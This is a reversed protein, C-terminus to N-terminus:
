KFWYSNGQQQNFSGNPLDLVISYVTQAIDDIAGGIHGGLRNTCATVAIVRLLDKGLANSDTV